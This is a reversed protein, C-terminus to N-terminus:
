ASRLTPRWSLLPASYSFSSSVLALSQICTTLLLSRPPRRSKCSWSGPMYRYRPLALPMPIHIHVNRSQLRIWSLTCARSGSAVTSHTHAIGKVRVFHFLETAFCSRRRASDISFSHIPSQLSDHCCHYFYHISIGGLDLLAPAYHSPSRSPRRIFV